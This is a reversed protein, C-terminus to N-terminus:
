RKHISRKTKGIILRKCEDLLQERLLHLDREYKADEAEYVRTRVETKITIEKIEIPM